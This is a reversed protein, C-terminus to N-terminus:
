QSGQDSHHLLGRGTEAPVVGDDARRDRHGGDHTTAAVLGGGQPQVPRTRDGSLSEGGIKSVGGDPGSGPPVPTLKTPRPTVFPPLDGAVAPVIDTDFAEESCERTFTHRMMLVTCAVLLCLSMKSYMFTHLVPCRQAGPLTRNDAAIARWVRKHNGPRTRFSSPQPKVLYGRFRPFTMMKRRITSQWRVANPTCLVRWMEFM